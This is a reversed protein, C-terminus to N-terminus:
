WGGVDDRVEERLKYIIMVSGVDWGSETRGVLPKDLHDEGDM